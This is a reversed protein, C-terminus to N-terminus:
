TALGTIVGQFTPVIYNEYYGGYRASYSDSSADRLLVTGDDKFWGFDPRHHATIFNTNVFYMRDDEVFRVIFIPVIIQTIIAM